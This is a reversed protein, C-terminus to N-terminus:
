EELSSSTEELSSAQEGTGQSLAAATSAVQGAASSLADAGSRVEGIVSALKESMAHMAEQLQGVEDAGEFSVTERLNGAAIRRAVTVAGLLPATISRTVVLGIGAAIAAAALVLGGLTRRTVEFEEDQNRAAAQIKEATKRELDGVVEALHSAAPDLE